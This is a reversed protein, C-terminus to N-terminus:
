GPCPESRTTDDAVLWGHEGADSRELVYDVLTQPLRDDTVISESQADLVDLGSVDACAVITAQDGDITVEVVELTTEGVVTLGQERDFMLQTVWQERATGVAWPYLAEVPEELRGVADLTGQYALLTDAADAEDQGEAAVATTTAPATTATTSSPPPATATVVESPISTTAVDSSTLTPITPTPDGGNGGCAGALGAVALLTAARMLDRTARM